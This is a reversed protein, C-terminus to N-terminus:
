QKAGEAPVVDVDPTIVQSTDANVEVQAPDVDVQPLSGADVDVDPAEGKSEVKATCAGAALLAAFAALRFTKKRLM